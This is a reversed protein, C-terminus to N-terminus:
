PYEVRFSSVEGEIGRPRSFEKLQMQERGGEYEVDLVVKGEVVTGGHVRFPYPAMCDPDYFFNIVKSRLDDDATLMINVYIGLFNVSEKRIGFFGDISKM